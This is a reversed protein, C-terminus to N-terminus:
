YPPAPTSEGAVTQLYASTWLLGYAFPVTVILGICCALVGVGGILGILFASGVWGLYHGEVVAMSGKIADMAGLGRDVILLPAFLLFRVMILGYIVGGIIMSCNGLLSWTPDTPPPQRGALIDQYMRIMDAGAILNAVESPLFCVWYLLNTILGVVFLQVWHRFGGFFDGFAWSQGRLQALGVIYFGALLPAFVAAEIVQILLSGLIPIFAALFLLLGLPIAVGVLIAMFGVMPGFAAMGREWAVSFIKGLDITYQNSLGAIGPGRGYPDHPQGYGGPPAFGGASVYGAGPPPPPSAAAAVQGAPPPAAGPQPVAFATQCQPCKVQSGPAINDPV